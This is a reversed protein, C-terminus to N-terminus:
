PKVLKVTSTGTEEVGLSGGGETLTPHGCPGGGCLPSPSPVRPPFLSVGPSATLLFPQGCCTTLNLDTGTSPNWIM